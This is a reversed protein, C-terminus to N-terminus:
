QVKISILADPDKKIGDIKLDLLTGPRKSFSSEKAQQYAVLAEDIKDQSMLIDGRVEAYESVFITSGKDLLTLAEDFHGQAAKVRALRLVALERMEKAKNGHDVIWQLTQEAKELDNDQVDLSARMFAAYTAYISDKYDTSLYGYIEDFLLRSDKDKVGSEMARALQTYLISAKTLSEQQKKEYFQYGFWAALVVALGLLIKSGYDSYWQKLAAIQEEEHADM